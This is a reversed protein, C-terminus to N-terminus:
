TIEFKGQFLYTFPAKVLSLFRHFFSQNSTLAFVPTKTNQIDNKM